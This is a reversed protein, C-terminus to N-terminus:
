LDSPDKSMLRWIVYESSTPPRTPCTSSGRRSGTAKGSTCRNPTCREALRPVAVRDRAHVAPRAGARSLGPDSVGGHEPRPHPCARHARRGLPRRVPRGRAPGQPASRPASGTAHLRPIKRHPSPCRTSFELSQTDARRHRQFLLFPREARRYRPRGAGAAGYRAARHGPRVRGRRRDGPARTRGPARPDSGKLDATEIPAHVVVRVRGPFTALRGKLMVHRSGVVSIPVVPLGAELAVLFSGAKFAGVRGDASRTGEPFVILCLGNATLRSAWSFIRSGIPVGATWWCTGPASCTGAWYRSIPWAVGERHHAASVAAVPVPGPHRLHEPPEVRVRLHPRSWGNSAAHRGRARRHDGPDAAVLHARVLARLVGAPRVPEVRDVARRPGAHLCQHRPDPVAGDAM